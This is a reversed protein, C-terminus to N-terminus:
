PIWSVCRADCIVQVNISMSNHRNRYLEARPGGSSKIQVHTCDLAGLVGPFVHPHQVNNLAMDNFETCIEQLRNENPFSLYEPRLRAIARFVANTRRSITSRHVNGLDGIVMQFSNTALFRLAATVQLEPPLPNNRNGEHQLEGTILNIYKPIIGANRCFGKEM